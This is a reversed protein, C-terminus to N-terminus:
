NLEAKALKQSLQLRIAEADPAGPAHKLYNRLEEISGPDDDQLSYINSLILFVMPFQYEPDLRQYQRASKEAIDLNNLNLNALANLFYAEPFAIPTLDIVKGTFDAAEEWKQEITSLWSLGIYPNVYLSDIEVAKLYAARAEKDRSQQKYLQGLEFWAEGYEPYIDIASNLFKEAEDLKEKELAKKARERAKNAEKPALLSAVSVTKGRARELRYVVITGVDNYGPQLVEKVRVISSGYGPLQARLDCGVMKAALTEETITPYFREDRRVPNGFIMSAHLPDRGYGTSADPMVLGHHRNGGVQFSFHGGHDVSAQRTLSNGCDVEITAGFPPALGDESVVMGSIFLNSSPPISPPLQPITTFDPKSPATPQTPPKPLPKSTTTTGGSKGGGGEQATALPLFVSLLFALLSIRLWVMWFGM